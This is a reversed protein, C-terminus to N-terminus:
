GEEGGACMLTERDVQFGSPVHDNCKEWDIFPVDLQQQVATGAKFNNFNKCRETKNNTIHGWGLVKLRSKSNLERGPDNSKWPLCIPSIISKSNNRDYLPISENVRILAIDNPAAGGQLDPDYDEHLIIKEVGRRMVGDSPKTLDHAGLLIM